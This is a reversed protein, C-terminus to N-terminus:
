LLLVGRFNWFYNFFSVVALALSVYIIIMYYPLGALMVILGLFLIAIKSKGALSTKNWM